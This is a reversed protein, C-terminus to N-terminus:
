PIITDGTISWGKSILYARAAAADVFNAGGSLSNQFTRGSQVTMNVNIPQEPVNTFVYNAWGVINATYSVTSIGGSGVTRRFISQLDVGAKRLQWNTCDLTTLSNCNLFAQQASSVNSVNWGSVDLTTLLVCGNFTNTLITVNSMDWGSVDLTTLSSCGSFTLNFTTASSTNWSSTDIGNLITCNSFTGSFNQVLGVDWSALTGVTTLSSCGNVLNQLTTSGSTDWADLNLSTLSSCAQFVQPINCNSIGWSSVDLTTISTCGQFMQSINTANSLNWLSVDLTTLSNCNFFAQQATNLNNLGWGNTGTITILNTCNSAFNNLTTVNNLVWGTTNINTLSSCLSFMSNILSFNSTNWSSFNGQNFSTAGSLFSSINLVSSVNWNNLNANFNSCNQFYGSLSASIITPSDTATCTMNTCGQFGANTSIVLDKWKSIELIKLRDGTNAFQWGRINGKIKVTYTGISTYTHTTELQNWVTIVDSNGDGWDVTFNIVGSSVLPLKFQNNATSGVSTNATNITFVFGANDRQRSAAIVGYM